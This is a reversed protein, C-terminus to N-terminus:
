ALPATRAVNNHQVEPDQGDQRWNIFALCQAGMSANIAEKMAMDPTACKLHDELFRRLDFETRKFAADDETNFMFARRVRATPGLGGYNKLDEQDVDEQAEVLQLQFELIEFNKREVIEPIAKVSVRYTGVPVNPPRKVDELKDNLINAFNMAM